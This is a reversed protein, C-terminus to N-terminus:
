DTGSGAPHMLVEDALKTMREWHSGKWFVRRCTPCRSFEAYAAAVVAPILARVSEKDCPQLPTNCRMCRGFMRLRDALDFRRVVEEVQGRPDDRRVLYGHSV